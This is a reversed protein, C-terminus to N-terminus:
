CRRYEEFTTLFKDRPDRLRATSVSKKWWGIEETLQPFITDGNISPMHVITIYAKKVQPITLFLKYIEGGGIICAHGGKLIIKTCAEELSQVFFVSEYPSFIEKRSLVIHTREPLPGGNRAIISDYTRHGMVVVGTKTTIKKFNAMDGPLRGWPLKGNCGIVGDPTMAVVISLDVSNM